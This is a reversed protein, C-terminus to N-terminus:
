KLILFLILRALVIDFDVRQMYEHNRFDNLSSVRRNPDANLMFGTFAILDSSWQAPLALTNESIM